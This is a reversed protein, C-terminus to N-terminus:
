EGAPSLSVEGLYAGRYGKLDESIGMFLGNIVKESRKEQPDREGKSM